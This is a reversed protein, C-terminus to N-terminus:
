SQVVRCHVRGQKEGCGFAVSPRASCDLDVMADTAPRCDFDIISLRIQAISCTPWGALHHIHMFKM